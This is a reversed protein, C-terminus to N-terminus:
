HCDFTTCLKIELNVQAPNMDGYYGGRLKKKSFM